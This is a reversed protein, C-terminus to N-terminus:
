AASATAPASPNPDLVIGLRDPHALAAALLPERAPSVWALPTCRPHWWSTLALPICALGHEAAWADAREQKRPSWDYVHAVFLVPARDRPRGYGTAHDFYRHADGCPVLPTYDGGRGDRGYLETWHVPRGTILPALDPRANPRPALGLPAAFRQCAELYAIWHPHM